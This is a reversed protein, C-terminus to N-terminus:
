HGDEKTRELARLRELIHRIYTDHEMLRERQADDTQGNLAVQQQLAKMGDKLTEILQTQSDNLKLLYEMRESMVTFRQWFTIMGTLTGLILATIIGWQMNKWGNGTGNGTGGLASM